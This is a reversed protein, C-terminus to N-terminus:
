VMVAHIKRLPVGISRKHATENLFHGTVAHVVHPAAVAHSVPGAVAHVREAAAVANFHSTYLHKLVLDQQRM